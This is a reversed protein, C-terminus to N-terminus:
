PTVTINATDFTAIEDDAITINATAVPSATVDITLDYDIVGAIDSIPCHLKNYIVDDGISFTATGYDALATKIAADGDVPYTDADVVINDVTIYIPVETPRSYYITHSYGADDVANANSTGYTQIGGAKTELITDVIDQEAGGVVVAEISHAPRGSGDVADTDNEFVIANTVEDLELLRARISNITGAGATALTESRRALMEADTEIDTGANIDDDNNFSDWGSIPTEIVTLTDAYAPINGATEAQLTCTVNPLVGETTVTIQMNVQVTSTTLTNTGVQLSPQDVSGDAGAFTVIFGTAYNGTVTVDGNLSPLANIASEVATADDNFALTGTEDGDFTLTWEGDDPVDSFQVLQVEDTGAAITFSDTTVFRADANGDVSIISGATIVTGLTGYAKGSGTGKTAALRQIGTISVLNDLPVGESTEPAAISDYVAQLEEWQLALQNCFITKIQGLLETPLLNIGDGLAERLAIDVETEIDAQRKIVFGDTTIGYAM